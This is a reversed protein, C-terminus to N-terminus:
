NENLILDHIPEEIYDYLMRGAVKGLENGKVASVAGATVILVLGVGPILLFPFYGAVLILGADMALAGM